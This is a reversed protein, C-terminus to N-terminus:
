GVPIFDGCPAELGHAELLREDRLLDQTEGDAVIQGQDIVIMRQFLEAVMHMDHSAVLMTQPLRALLQILERRARPDLGASPEDLILIEPDMSLVSAIAVRKKEGQSLHHSVRRKAERMGVSALAQDVRRDIEGTSCGMYIPGFAVDDYVSQSFLQDDPDQFVMGVAARIEGLNDRTVPKGCVLIEGDGKLIGNMHLFLTSKGSGNPGVLAVKEGPAIYLSVGNLAQTGDGYAFHLNRVDLTHHM